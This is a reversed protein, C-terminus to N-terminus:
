RWGGWALLLILVALAVALSRLYHQVQGTQASSFRLAAQRVKQCGQDFGLNIIYDDLLRSIWSLGVALTSIATVTNEWINRELWACGRAIAFTWAIVTREYCEDWYLRDRLWRFIRPQIRELPDTTKLDRGSIRGYLVWGLGLGAGVILSSVIMLGLTGTTMGQGARSHGTLYEHFWPWFPTNIFGLGIAGLALIVLPITM